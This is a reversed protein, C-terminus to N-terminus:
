LSQAKKAAQLEDWHPKTMSTFNGDGNDIVVFENGDQDTILEYDM